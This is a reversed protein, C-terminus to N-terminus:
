SVIDIQKTRLKRALFSPLLRQDRATKGARRKGLFQLFIQTRPLPDCFADCRVQNHGFLFTPAKVIRMGFIEEHWFLDANDM